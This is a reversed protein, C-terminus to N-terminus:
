TEMTFAAVLSRTPFLIMQRWHYAKYASGHGAQSVLLLSSNESLTWTKKVIDLLKLRHGVCKELPPSFNELPAEGGRTVPRNTLLFSRLYITRQCTLRKESLRSRHHLSSQTTKVKMNVQEVIEWSSMLKALIWIFEATKKILTIYRNSFGSNNKHAAWSLRQYV